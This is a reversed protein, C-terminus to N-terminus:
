RSIVPLNVRFGALEIWFGGAVAFGGGSHAGGDPQGATGILTYEGGTSTGGGGDITSWTLDYGGGTQAHMAAPAILLLLVTVAVACSLISIRRM